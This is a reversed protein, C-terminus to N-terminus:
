PKPTIQVSIQKANREVKLLVPKERSDRLRDGIAAAAAAANRVPRGAIETIVDDTQLAARDAPSGPVVAVVTAGTRRADRLELGLSEAKSEVELKGPRTNAVKTYKEPLEAMAVPVQIVKGGRWVKLQVTAGIKKKLIEKQLELAASVKRGDIEVIV